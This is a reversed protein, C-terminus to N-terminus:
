KWSNLEENTIIKSTDFPTKPIKRNSDLPTIFLFDGVKKTYQTPEKSEQEMKDKEQSPKDDAECSCIILVLLPLIYTKM